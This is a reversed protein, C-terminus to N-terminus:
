EPIGKLNSYIRNLQAFLQEATADPRSDILGQLVENDEKGMWVKTYHGTQYGNEQRFINLVNKATYVRDLEVWTLGFHHMLQEFLTLSVIGGATLSIFARLAGRIDLERVDVPKYGVFVGYEPHELGVTLSVAAAHEDGDAKDLVHSLIFHWIDVLELRAQAMDPTQHKWWKWGYHELAETAEVTMADTWQNGVNLWDPNIITNLRNQLSLHEPIINASFSM